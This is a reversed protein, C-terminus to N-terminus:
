ATGTIAFRGKFQRVLRPSKRLHDRATSISNLVREPSVGTIASIEDVGFGEIAHLIFAERHSPSVDQLASAILRMMEDSGVIQEPTAVRGDAIITEETIAEDPQHFQLEPEDSAKVNPKRASDELHVAGGNSGDPRSLEDLAKMALRYLWPELSLREPKEKGDAGEGLAAAITEDIVEEKTISDPAVLDSAERFYIEREVFRELRSLNVNVYSRVDEASVVAPFVAALTQEFPVSTHRRASAENQRRPWKHSSRLLEKHKNVQQLLDEFASKVAAAATSAKAQVAMQGSPLRLNLSVSTGERTSIEEVMGKLHVLEPRFVQLRKRLKEVQHQIDKEVAPTKHLRYSVHVNMLVELKGVAVRL